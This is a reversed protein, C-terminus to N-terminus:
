TTPTGRLWRIIAFAVSFFAVLLLITALLSPWHDPLLEWHPTVFEATTFQEGRFVCGILAAGSLAAEADIVSILEEAQGKVDRITRMHFLLAKQASLYAHMCENFPSAEDNAARPALGWLCYSYEISAYNALRRFTLDSENSFHALKFILGSYRSLIILEGHSISGFQLGSREGSDIRKSHAAATGSILLCATMLLVVRKMEVSTLDAILRGWKVKAFRM